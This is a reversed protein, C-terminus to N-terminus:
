EEDPKKMEEDRNLHEENPKILDEILELISIRASNKRYNPVYRYLQQKIRHKSKDDVVNEVLQALDKLNNERNNAENILFSSHVKAKDRSKKAM